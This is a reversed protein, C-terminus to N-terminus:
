INISNENKLSTLFIDYPCINMVDQHLKQNAGPNRYAM